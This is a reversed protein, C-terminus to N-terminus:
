AELGCEKTIRELIGPEVREDVKRVFLYESNKIEELDSSKYTYPNGRSFDVLRLNGYFDNSTEKYLNGLFPSAKLLTQMFIEDGCNSYKFNEEIYKRKSLIYRVFEDTISFWNAGYCIDLDNKKCRDIKLIKQIDVCLLNLGRFFSNVWAIKFLRCYKRFLHYYQIRKLIVDSHKDFFNKQYDIFEKGQRNDFFEHIYSQSKIPFCQGSLLHYYAFKGKEAVKEMLFLECEIQSYDSWYVTIENYIEIQSKNVGGILKKRVAETFGKAKKDIHVFLDNREDDLAKILKELQEWNDYAMILYAHKQFENCKGM